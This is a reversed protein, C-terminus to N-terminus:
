SVAGCRRESVAGRDPRLFQTSPSYGNAGRQSRACACTLFAVLARGARGKIQASTVGRTAPRPNPPKRPAYLHATVFKRYHYKAAARHIPGETPVGGRSM